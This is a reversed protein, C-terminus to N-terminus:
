LKIGKNYFLDLMVKHAMNKDRLYSCPLIKDDQLWSDGVIVWNEDVLFWGQGKKMRWVQDRGVQRVYRGENGRTTVM